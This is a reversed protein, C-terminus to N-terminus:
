DSIAIIIVRWDELNVLYLIKLTPFDENELQGTKLLFYDEAATSFRHPHRMLHWEVSKMFEDIRSYHKKLEQIRVIVKETKEVQYRPRAARM